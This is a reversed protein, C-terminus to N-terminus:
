NGRLKTIFEDRDCMYVDYSRDLAWNIADKVLNFHGGSIREPMFIAWRYLSSTDRHLIAFKDSFIYYIIHNSLNLDSEMINDLELVTVGDQPRSEMKYM